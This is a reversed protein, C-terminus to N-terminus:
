PNVTVRLFRPEAASFPLPDRASTTTETAVFAPGVPGWGVLDSSAEIQYELGPVSEFTLELQGAVLAVATIRFASAADLPDTLTHFLEYYDSFGDRDSDARVPSTGYVAAEDTDSIGDGDNDPGADLVTLTTIAGIVPGAANRAVVFHNGALSPRAVLAADATTVTKKGEHYWQYTLPSTSSVTIDLVLPDGDKVVLRRAPEATFLPLATHGPVQLFVADAVL